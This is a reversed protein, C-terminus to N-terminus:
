QDDPLARMCKCDTHGAGACPLTQSTPWMATLLRHSLLIHMRSPANSCEMMNRLTSDASAHPDDGVLAAVLGEAPPLRHVISNPQHHM